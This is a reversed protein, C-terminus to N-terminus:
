SMSTSYCVCYSLSVLGSIVAEHYIEALKDLASDMWTCEYM